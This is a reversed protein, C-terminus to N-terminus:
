QVPHQGHHQLAGGRRLRAGDERRLELARLDRAGRAVIAHGAVGVDLLQRREHEARRLELPSLAICRHVRRDNTFPPASASTASPTAGRKTTRVANAWDRAAREFTSTTSKWRPATSPSLM